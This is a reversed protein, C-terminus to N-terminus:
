GTRKGADCTRADEAAGAAERAFRAVISDLMAPEALTRALDAALTELLLRYSERLDGGHAALPLRQRWLLNDLLRPRVVDLVDVAAPSMVGIALSAASEGEGPAQARHWYGCPIYLLDGAKLLVRHLPMIEREYHMDAPLTEEVPWPNVSNKRLFYEKAGGTQVIFVEEADYHWSFGPRGAPTIFLHMDIPALFAAGFAQALEALKSDHREAHRQVATWGDHSMAQLGAITRPLGDRRCQGDKAMMFDAGAEALAADVTAWSGLAAADPVTQPLALPLRHYYETLFREFPFDGFLHQVSAM